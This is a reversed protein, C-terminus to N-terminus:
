VSTGGLLRGQLHYGADCRGCQDEQTRLQQWAMDGHQCSGGWATCAFNNPNTFTARRCSPQSHAGASRNTSAYFGANCTLPCAAGAALRVGNECEGYSGNPVNSILSVICALEHCCEQEDERM